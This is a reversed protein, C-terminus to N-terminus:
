ITNNLISVAEDFSMIAGVNIFNLEIFNISYKPKIYIRGKFQNNAVVEPTNVKDGVDILYDEVGRRGKVDRLYSDLIGYVQARTINDNFEFMAFRAANALTKELVIFLRRTPIRNFGSALSLLTKDGYIMTGIGPFNVVPNVRNAYLQDRQSENPNFALKVVNNILGRQEGAGSWWPDRNRDTRSYVGAHDGVTPVWLYRDNYRDYIYKWGSDMEAYSTSPLTMVDNLIERVENRPNNVVAERRCSLYVMSDKRIEAINQILYNALVSNTVGGEDFISRYNGIIIPADTQEPDKFLDYAAIDDDIGMSTFADDGNKLRISNSIWDKGSANPDTNSLFLPIAALDATGIRIYASITNVRNMWYNSVGDVTRATSDFSLDAYKEIVAGATGTIKGTVDYVIIHICESSPELSIVNSWRWKKTLETISTNTFTTALTGSSVTGSYLRDLDITDVSGFVATATAGTGTGTFGVSASTYGSGAATVTISVVSLTATLVAATSPTGPTGGISLTPASTYGTGAATITVATVEGGAITVTGTAGSGGGGTFVLAYSGNTYGAGANSITVTSSVGMTATATAGTGGAGTIAVTPVATYGTGGATVTIGLVRGPTTDLTLGRVQYQVGNVILWDGLDFISRATSTTSTRFYKISKSRTFFYQDKNAVLDKSFLYEDNPLAVSNAVFSIGISNGLEGPFRAVFTNNELDGDTLNTYHEDNLITINQEATSSYGLTNYNVYSVANRNLYTTGNYSASRVVDLAGAYSLYQAAVFFDISNDINTGPTGFIVGLSEENAIRIRELCPGWRFRGAFCGNTGVFPEAIGSLDTEKTYVGPSVAFTMDKGRKLGLVGRDSNVGISTEIEFLISRVDFNGEDDYAFVTANYATNPSLNDFVISGNAPNGSSNQGFTTLIDVYTADITTYYLEVSTDSLYGVNLSIILPLLDFTIDDVDSVINTNNISDPLIERDSILVNFTDSDTTSILPENFATITVTYDGPLVYPLDFNGNAPLNYDHYVLISTSSVVEIEVHDLADSVWSINLPTPGYDYFQNTSLTLTITPRPLVSIFPNRDVSGLISGDEAFDFYVTYPIPTNNTGIVELTVVLRFFSNSSFYSIPLQGVVVQQGMYEAIIDTTQYDYGILIPSGPIPETDFSVSYETFYINTGTYTNELTSPM